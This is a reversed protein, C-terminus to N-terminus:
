VLESYHNSGLFLADKSKIYTPLGIIVDSVMHKYEYGDMAMQAITM